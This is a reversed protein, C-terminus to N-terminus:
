FVCSSLKHLNHPIYNSETNNERPLKDHNTKNERSLDNAGGLPCLEQSPNFIAVRSIHNCLESPDGRGTLVFESCNRSAYLLRFDDKVYQM